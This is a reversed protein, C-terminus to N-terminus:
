CTGGKRRVWCTSAASAGTWGSPLATTRRANTQDITYVFGAMTTAGTATVTYSNADSVCAFAFNTTASTMTCPMGVYTRRDQFWRETVTRMEQLNSTAEAIRGRLMYERYSPLAVAALIAAIVVVIMLEILTFGQAHGANTRSPRTLM